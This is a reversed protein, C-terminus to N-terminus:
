EMQYLSEFLATMLAPINKHCPVLFKAMDGYFIEPQILSEIRHYEERLRYDDWLIIAGPQLHILSYLFCPVRFRGDILVLDPQLNKQQLKAWPLSYYAPWNCQKQQDLPYGWEGTAGLDAFLLETESKSQIQGIQASISSIWEQSSDIAVIHPVQLWAALTTSGGMGFELYIHAEKLALTLASREAEPMHPQPFQHM